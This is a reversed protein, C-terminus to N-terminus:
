FPLQAWKDEIENRLVNMDKAINLILKHDDDGECDMLETITKCYQGKDKIVEWFYGNPSDTANDNAKFAIWTIVEPDFGDEYLLKSLEDVTIQKFGEHGILYDKLYGPFHEKVYQDHDADDRASMSKVINEKGQNVQAQTVKPLRVEPEMITGHQNRSSEVGKKLQLLLDRHMSPHYRDGKIQNNELWDPIWSLLDDNLIRVFGRSELARLDEEGTGTTRMVTFAEVFGDDDAKMGLDYYLLRATPELRLFSARDIVRNSFMRRNAM